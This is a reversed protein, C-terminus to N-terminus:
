KFVLPHRCQMSYHRIVISLIIPSQGNGKEDIHIAVCVHFWYFGATLWLVLGYSGTSM